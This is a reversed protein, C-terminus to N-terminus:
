RMNQPEFASGTIEVTLGDLWVKIDLMDLALHKMDFDLTILKQLILQIYDELKPLCIAAKHSEQIQRELEEKRSELSSRENNIRRNEAEVTEKPFGKLAWQLLQEQERNLVKLKKEIRQLDSELIGLNDAEDRQKEIATIIVEPNAM